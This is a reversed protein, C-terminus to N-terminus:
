IENIRKLLKYGALMSILINIFIFLMDTNTPMVMLDIGLNPNSYFNLFTFIHDIVYYVVYVIVNFYIFNVFKTGM